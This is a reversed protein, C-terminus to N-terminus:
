EFKRAKWRQAEAIPGSWHSTRPCTSLSGQACVSSLFDTASSLTSHNM